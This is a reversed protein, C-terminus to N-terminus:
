NTIQYLNRDFWSVVVDELRAHGFKNVSNIVSDNILNREALDHWTAHDPLPNYETAYVGAYLWPSNEKRYFYADRCDFGSIALMYMLNLINYSYYQNSHNAVVLRNNYYYTTQPVAMILMGNVNLMSKWAALCKLPDRAYQFVDHAWILDAQKPICRTEFNAQVPIINSNEELMGPDLQSINQDVAYVTYNHPEMLVDRTTLTAWWQADLGEGCGVDVITRLNELFSDYGYVLNLIELSHRHSDYANKFLAM